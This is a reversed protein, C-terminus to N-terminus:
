TDTRLACSCRNTNRPATAAPVHQTSRNAIPEASYTIQPDIRPTSGNVSASGCALRATVPIRLASMPSIRAEANEAMM